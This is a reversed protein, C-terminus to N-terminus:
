ASRSLNPKKRSSSKRPPGTRRQTGFPNAPLGIKVKSVPPLVPTGQALAGVTALGLIIAAITTRLIVPRM